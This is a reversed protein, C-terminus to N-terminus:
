HGQPQSRGDDSNNKSKFVTGIGSIHAVEAPVFLSVYKEIKKQLQV